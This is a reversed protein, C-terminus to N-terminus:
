IFLLIIEVDWVLSTTPGMEVATEFNHLEGCYKKLFKIITWTSLRPM